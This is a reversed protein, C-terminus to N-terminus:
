SIIGSNNGILNVLPRTNVKIVHQEWINNNDKCYNPHDMPVPDPLDTDNMNVISLQFSSPPTGLGNPMENM